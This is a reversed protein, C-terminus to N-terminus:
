QDMVFRHEHKGNRKVYNKPNGTGRAKDARKVAAIKGAYSNRCVASCTKSTEKRSTYASGYVLCVRNAIPIKGPKKISVKGEKIKEEAKKRRYERKKQNLIEKNDQRYKKQYEQNGWQELYAKRKEKAAM